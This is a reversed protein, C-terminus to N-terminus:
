VCSPQALSHSEEESNNGTDLFEFADVFEDEDISDSDDETAEGSRQSSSNPDLSRLLQQFAMRLGDSSQPRREFIEFATLGQNNKANFDLGRLESSALLKLTGEDGVEAATHLLTRQTKDVWLHNAGLRLLLALADHANSEVARSLPARGSRDAADIDAGEEYLVKIVEYSNHRAAYFIPPAGHNVTLSDIRAGAFLLRRILDTSNKQTATHLVSFGLRPDVMNVDAGAELLLNVLELRRSAPVNAKVAFQLATNGNANAEDVAAGAEILTQAKPLDGRQVAYILPTFGAGDRANVQALIDPDGSQLTAALDVHCYGVVIKHVFTLGLDDLGASLPLLKELEACFESSAAHSLIMRAAQSRASTGNDDELDPDAGALLLSKVVGVAATRPSWIFGGLAMMLASRGDRHYVDIVSAKNTRLIHQVADVRGVDVQYLINEASAVYDIRHRRLVAVTLQGTTSAEVSAHIAYGLFWLPFAYTLSLRVHRGKSCEEINCGPSTVPFGTYGLFLSGLTRHLVPPLRWSLGHATPAHCRCLCNPPCRSGMLGLDIYIGSHFIISSLNPLQSSGRNDKSSNGRTRVYNDGVPPPQDQLVAQQRGILSISAQLAQLGAALPAHSQNTANHVSILQSGTAQSNVDLKQVVAAHNQQAELRVGRLELQIRTSGSSIHTLLLDNITVRVDKLRRQLESARSKKLCWKVRMMTPKEASLKQTLHDLDVLITEASHLQTKLAALVASGHSTKHEIADSAKMSDDLLTLIARLDQTENSLALILTPANRLQSQLEHLAASSRLTIDLLGAVASVLSILEAM